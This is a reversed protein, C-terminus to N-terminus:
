TKMRDVSKQIRDEEKPASHQISIAPPDPSHGFVYDFEVKSVIAPAPGPNVSPVEGVGGMDRFPAEPLVPSLRAVASVALISPASMISSATDVAPAKFFPSDPRQSTSPAYLAASALVAAVEHDALIMLCSRCSRSSTREVVAHPEILTSGLLSAGTVSDESLSFFWCFATEPKRRKRQSELSRLSRAPSLAKSKAKGGKEWM